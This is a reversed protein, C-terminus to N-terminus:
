INVCERAYFDICIVTGGSSVIIYREGILKIFKALLEAELGKPHQLKVGDLMTAKGLDAILNISNRLSKRLYRDKVPSSNILASIDEFKTDTIFSEVQYMDNDYHYVAQVYCIDHNGNLTFINSM